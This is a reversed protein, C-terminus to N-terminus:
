SAPRFPNVVRVGDYDQGDTLDESLLKACGASAAAALIAADWYSTQYRRKLQLAAQMLPVSLEIVRFRLWLAILEAAEDHSLPQVRGTRTAQVYFEQLVQVSVVLDDRRLIDRAIEAKARDVRGACVAYLLVNTDVFTM